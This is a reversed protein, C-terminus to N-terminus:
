TLMARLVLLLTFIAVCIEVAPPPDFLALLGTPPVCPLPLPLPPLLLEVVRTTFRESFLKQYLRSFFIRSRSRSVVSLSTCTSGSACSFWCNVLM